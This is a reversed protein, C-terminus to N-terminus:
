SYFLEGMHHVTEKGQPTWEQCKKKVLISTGFKVTKFIVVRWSANVLIRYTNRTEGLRMGLRDCYKRELM